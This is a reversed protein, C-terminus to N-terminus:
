VLYQVSQSVSTLSQAASPLKPKDPCTSIHVSLVVPWCHCIHKLFFIFVTLLGVPRWPPLLLFPLLRVHMLTNDVPMLVSFVRMLVTKVAILGTLDHILPLSAM